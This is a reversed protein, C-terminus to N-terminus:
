IKLIKYFDKDNIIKVGFKKAKELKSGPDLGVILASTKKSVSNSINGGNEIIHEELNRRSMNNLKGTIVYTENSFLNDEEKKNNILQLGSNLMNNINELNEKNHFYNYINLAAVPGIDRLEIIDNYNAKSLDEISQYKKALSRATVEGVENIGLSYIFNSLKIEMRDSISKLINKISKDGLNIDYEKGSDERVATNITLDKLKKKNLKYLDSTSNIIKEDVLRSILKEGIGQIDMAKKSVFHIIAAKKQASCNLGGTCKAFAMDKVREIASGCEPCKKPMIIKKREVGKNVISVIEPIVDGARRITVTDGIHLDKKNIEDMNHLTANSVIVGGVEVPKLSAVPTLVGTRGVQFRVKDITTIKQEAPFKHAIAWRPARSVFGLDKQHQLNDVKYVIGDIEYPIKDRM